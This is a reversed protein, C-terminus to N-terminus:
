RRTRKLADQKNSWEIWAKTDEIPPEDSARGGPKVPEIPKPAKSVAKPPPPDKPRSLEAEIQAIRRAQRAISLDAIEGAIDPNEGLYNLIAHPKDAEAIVEMLPTMRGSRDFLEVESMVARVKGGFDQFEKEGNAAIDNARQAIRESELMEAAKRQVDQETFRPQEPEQDPQQQTQTPQQYPTEHVRKTLKDIRRQMQREKRAFEERLIEAESKEVPTEPEASKEPDVVEPTETAAGPQIETPEPTGVPTEITM